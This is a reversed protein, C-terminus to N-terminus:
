SIYNRILVLLLNKAHQNFVGRKVEFTFEIEEVLKEPIEIEKLPSNADPHGELEHDMWIQGDRAIHVALSNGNKRPVVLIDIMGLGAGLRSVDTALWAKM